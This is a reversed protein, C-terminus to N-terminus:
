RGLVKFNTGGPTTGGIPAGAPLLDVIVNNPNLGSRRAINAFQTQTKDHQNAAAQYLKNAQSVIQTRAADPLRGEGLVQKRLAEIHGPLGAVSSATAFEGERVTSGPDLIKMYNFLLAIDGAGTKEIQDMRNKSDRITIYPAAQKLFDDRLKNEGEIRKVPDEIASTDLGGKEKARTEAVASAGKETGKAAGTEAPTPAFLSAKVMADLAAPNRGIKTALGKSAEILPGVTAQIQAPDRGAAVAAKITESVIGMNEAIQKEVGAIFQQGEARKGARESIDIQRSQLDLGRSRLATDADQKRIDAMSDAVGGLFFGNLGAM